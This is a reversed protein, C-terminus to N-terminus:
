LPDALGRRRIMLFHVTMFLLMLWPLIVVHFAFFRSLALQGVADGGRLLHKLPDGVAPIASMADTGVTTAWYGAQNWPLLTGSVGFMITLALLLMGNVWTLDRPPRYAATFFARLMHLLVSVVMLNAGWHHIGRVLWGYPVHNTIEVVSKYAESTTPRYYLLLLIGTAAQVLFLMFSVSGLRALLNTELGTRYLPVPRAAQKKLAEPFPLSEDLPAHLFGVLSLLNFIETFLTRKEPDAVNRSRREDGPAGTM